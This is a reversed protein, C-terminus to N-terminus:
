VSFVMPTHPSSVAPFVWPPSLRGVHVVQLHQLHRDHSGCLVTALWSSVLVPTTFGWCYLDVIFFRLSTDKSVPLHHRQRHGYPMQPSVLVNFVFVFYLWFVSVFIFFLTLNHNHSHWSYDRDRIVKVLLKVFDLIKMDQLFKCLDTWFLSPASLTFSPLNWDQNHLWLVSSFIQYFM